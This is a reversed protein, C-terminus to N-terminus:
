NQRDKMTFWRKSVLCTAMIHSYICERCSPPRTLSVLSTIATVTISQWPWEALM